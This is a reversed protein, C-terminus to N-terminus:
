KIRIGLKEMWRRAEASIRNKLLKEKRNNSKKEAKKTERYFKATQSTLHWKGCKEHYYSRIPKEYVSDDEEHIQRIRADADEKSNFGVKECIM